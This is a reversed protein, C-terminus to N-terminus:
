DNDIIWYDEVSFYQINEPTLVADKISSHDASHFIAKWTIRDNEKYLKFTVGSFSNKMEDAPNNTCFKEWVDFFDVCMQRNDWNDPVMKEAMRYGYRHLDAIKRFTVSQKYARAFEKEQEDECKIPATKVVKWFEAIQYELEGNETPRQKPVNSTLTDGYRCYGSYLAEEIESQTTQRMSEGPSYRSFGNNRLRNHMGLQDIYYWMAGMATMEGGVNMAYQGRFYKNQHEHSHEFVDHFIGLGGWFANFANGYNDDQTDKHTLGWEGTADDNFFSLEVTKVLRKM